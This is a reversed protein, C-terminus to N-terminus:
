NIHIVQSGGGPVLIEKQFIYSCIDFDRHESALEFFKFTQLNYIHPHDLKNNSLLSM